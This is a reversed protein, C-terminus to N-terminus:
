AEKSPHYTKVINAVIHKIDESEAKAAIDLEKLQNEFEKDDMPIPQAITIDKNEETERLGEEDMLREEYLKEGPRLGTYVVKIDVDPVLGSLRIM